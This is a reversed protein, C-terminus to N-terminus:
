FNSSPIVAFFIRQLRTNAQQCGVHRRAAVDDEMRLREFFFYGSLVPFSYQATAEVFFLGKM